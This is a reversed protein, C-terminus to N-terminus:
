KDLIEALYIYPSELKMQVINCSKERTSQM